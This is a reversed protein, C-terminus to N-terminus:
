NGAKKFECKVMEESADSLKYPKAKPYKKCFSKMCGKGLVKGNFVYDDEAFDCGECQSYTVPKWIIQETNYKNNKAKM